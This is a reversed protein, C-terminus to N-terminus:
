AAEQLQAPMTEVAAHEPSALIGLMLAAAVQMFELDWAHNNKTIRHWRWETRGLRDPKTEQKREGNMQDEYIKPADDPTEFDAGKGSRLSHLIDKISDSACHILPVTKGAHKVHTIDSWMRRVTRGNKTIPFYNFQSGKLPIWGYKLHDDYAKGAEYGSDEFVRVSDIVFREQIERIQEVTQIRSFYLLRSSASSRWARVLVWFHDKQRDITLFRETEDVIKEAINADVLNYGAGRLLVADTSFDVKWPLARRQRTFDMMAQNVGQKQQRRAELFQSALDAM